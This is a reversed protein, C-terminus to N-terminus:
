DASFCTGSSSIQQLISFLVTRWDCWVVHWLTFIVGDDTISWPLKIQVKLSLVGITSIRSGVFAWEWVGVWSSDRRLWVQLKQQPGQLSDRPWSQASEWLAALWNGPWQQQRRRRVSKQQSAPLPYHWAPDSRPWLLTEGWGWRRLWGTFFLTANM